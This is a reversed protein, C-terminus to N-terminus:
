SSGTVNDAIHFRILFGKDLPSFRWMWIRLHADVHIRFDHSTRFRFTDASLHIPNYLQCSIMRIAQYSSASMFLFKADRLDLVLIVPLSTGCKEADRMDLSLAFPAFPVSNEQDGIRLETMALGM